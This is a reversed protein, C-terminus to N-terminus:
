RDVAIAVLIAILGVTSIAGLAIGIIARYSGHMHPNNRIQRIGLIGLIVAVPGLFCFALSILGLYGSILALPSQGIPVVMRLAANDEPRSHPPPYVMAAQVIQDDAFPNPPVYPNTREAGSLVHGCRACQRAGAELVQGCQPCLM